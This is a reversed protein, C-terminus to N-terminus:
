VNNMIGNEYKDKVRKMESRLMAVLQGYSQFTSSNILMYEMTHLEDIVTNVGSQYALDSLKKLESSTVNSVKDTQVIIVTPKTM